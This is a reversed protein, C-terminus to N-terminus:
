RCTRKYGSTRISHTLGAPGWPPQKELLLLLRSRSTVLGERLAPIVFWRYIAEEIHGLKPGTQNIAPILIDPSLREDSASDLLFRIFLYLDLNNSPMPPALGSM